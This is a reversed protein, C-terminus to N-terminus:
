ASIFSVFAFRGDEFVDSDSQVQSIGHFVSSPFVILLNDQHNIKGMPVYQNEAENSLSEKYFELAGGTFNDPQNRLYYLISIKFKKGGDDCHANSDYGHRGNTLSIPLDTVKSTTIEMARLITPIRAMVENCYIDQCAATIDAICQESAKEEPINSFGYQDYHNTGIAFNLVEKIAVGAAVRHRFAAKNKCLSQFLRNRKALTLFNPITLVKMEELNAAWAANPHIENLM